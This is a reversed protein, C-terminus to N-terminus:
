ETATAPTAGRWGTTFPDRPRGGCSQRRGHRQQRHRGGTRGTASLFSNSLRGNGCRGNAEERVARRTLLLLLLADTTATTDPLVFYCGRVERGDRRPVAAAASAVLARGSYFIAGGRTMNREHGGGGDNDHTESPGCVQKEVLSNHSPVPGLDEM